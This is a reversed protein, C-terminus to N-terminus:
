IIHTSLCIANIQSPFYIYVNKNSRRLRRSSTSTSSCSLRTSYHSSTFLHLFRCFFSFFFCRCCNGNNRVCAASFFLFVGGDFYRRHHLLRGLLRLHLIASFVYYTTRNLGLVYEYTTECKGHYSYHNKARASM